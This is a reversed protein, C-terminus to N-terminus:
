SCSEIPIGQHDEKRIMAIMQPLMAVPLFLGWGSSPGTGKIM